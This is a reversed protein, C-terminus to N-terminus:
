PKMAEDIVPLLNKADSRLPEHNIPWRRFIAGENELAMNGLVTRARELVNRLREIQDAQDDIIRGALKENYAMKNRNM